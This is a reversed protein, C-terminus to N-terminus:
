KVHHVNSASVIATVVMLTISVLVALNLVFTGVGVAARRYRPWRRSRWELVSIVLLIAGTALLGHRTLFIMGRGVFAAGRFVAPADLFTFPVTGAQLCM